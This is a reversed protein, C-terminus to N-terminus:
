EVFDSIGYAASGIELRYCVMPKTRFYVVWSIHAKPVASHLEHRAQHLTLPWYVDKSRGASCNRFATGSMYCTGRIGHQSSSRSQEQVGVGTRACVGAYCEKRLCLDM